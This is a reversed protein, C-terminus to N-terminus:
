PTFPPLQARPAPLAVRRVPLREKAPVLTNLALENSSPPRRHVIKGFQCFDGM